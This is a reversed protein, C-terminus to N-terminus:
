AYTFTYKVTGTPGGAWNCAVIQYKTKSKKVKVTMTETAPANPTSLALESGAALETGKSDLLLLDWDGTYNYLEVKLKGPAPATFNAIHYSNPVNMACVSYSDETQNTMDPAVATAEYTKTIPKKKPAATANPATAGVTVLAGALVLPTIRM